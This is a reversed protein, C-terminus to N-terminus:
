IDSRNDIENKAVRVLEELVSRPIVLEKRESLFKLLVYPYEKAMFLFTKGKFIALTNGAFKTLPLKDHISEIINEPHVSKANTKSAHVEQELSKQIAREKRRVFHFAANLIAITENYTNLQRNTKPRGAELKGKRNIRGNAM